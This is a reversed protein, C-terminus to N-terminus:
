KKGIAVVSFACYHTKQDGCNVEALRKNTEKETMEKVKHMRESGDRSGQTSTTM